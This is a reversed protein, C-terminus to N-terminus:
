RNRNDRRLAATMRSFMAADIAMLSERAAPTGRPRTLRIVATRTPSMPALRATVALASRSARRRRQSTGGPLLFLTRTAVPRERLHGWGAEPPMGPGTEFHGLEQGLLLPTGAWTEPGTAWRSPLTRAMVPIVGLDNNNNTKCARSSGWGTRSSPRITECPSLRVAAGARGSAQYERPM